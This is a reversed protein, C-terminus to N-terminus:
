QLGGQRPSCTITKTAYRGERLNDATSHPQHRTSGKKGEQAAIADDLWLADVGSVNVLEAVADEHTFSSMGLVECLATGAFRDALFKRPLNRFAAEENPEEKDSTTDPDSAEDSFSSESM